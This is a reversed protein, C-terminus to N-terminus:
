MVEEPINSYPFIPIINRSPSGATLRAVVHRWRRSPEAEGELGKARANTLRLLTKRNESNWYEAM